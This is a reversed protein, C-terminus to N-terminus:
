RCASILQPRTKPWLSWPLRLLGVCPGGILHCTAWKQSIISAMNAIKFFIGWAQRTSVSNEIRWLSFFLGMNSESTGWGAAMRFATRRRYHMRRMLKHAVRSTKNSTKFASGNTIPKAENWTIKAAKKSTNTCNGLVGRFIRYWDMSNSENKIEKIIKTVPYLGNSFM